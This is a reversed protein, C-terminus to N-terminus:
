QCHLDCTKSHRTEISCVQYAGPHCEPLMLAISTRSVKEDGGTSGDIEDLILCKPKSSYFSLSSDSIDKLCDNMFKSSRDDSANVEVANYGCHSAIVYALTTKGNGPAGVILAIPEKPRSQPDGQGFVFNDWSKLWQLVEM